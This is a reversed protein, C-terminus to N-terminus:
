IIKIFESFGSIDFVTRIGPTMNMLVLDGGAAGVAKQVSLIARLGKSSIYELGSCDMEISKAANDFVPALAEVFSDTTSTNLEGRVIVSIKDSNQNIEVNM